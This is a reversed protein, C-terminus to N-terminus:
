VIRGKTKGKIAIGDARKSASSKVSGGKKMGRTERKVEDKAEREKNETKEKAKKQQDDQSLLTSGALGAKAASLGILNADLIDGEVDRNGRKSVKKAGEKGGKEALKKAVMRAAAGILPFAM